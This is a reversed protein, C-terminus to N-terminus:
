DTRIGGEQKTAARPVPVLGVAPVLLVARHHPLVALPVVVGARTFERPHALSVGLCALSAGLGGRGLVQWGEPREGSGEESVV